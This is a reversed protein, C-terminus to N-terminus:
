KMSEDNKEGGNVIQWMHCNHCLTYFHTTSANNDTELIKAEEAKPQELFTNINCAKIKYEKVM